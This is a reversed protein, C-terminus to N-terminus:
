WFVLRQGCCCRSLDCVCLLPGGGGAVWHWVKGFVCAAKNPDAILTQSGCQTNNITNNEFTRSVSPQRGCTGYMCIILGPSLYGIHEQIFRLCAHFMKHCAHTSPVCFRICSHIIEDGASHGVAAAPHRKGDGAISSCCKLVWSKHCPLALRYHISVHTDMQQQALVSSLEKAFYIQCKSLLLSLCLRM